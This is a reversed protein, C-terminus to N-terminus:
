EQSRRGVGREGQDGEWPNDAWAAVSARAWALEEDGEPMERYAKAYTEDEKREKERRLDDEAAQRFFRSRTQGRERCKEEVRELVEAPLSIAINRVTGM